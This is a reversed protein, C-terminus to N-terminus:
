PVAATPKFCCHTHADCAACVWVATLSRSKKWGFELVGVPFTLTENLFIIAWYIGWIRVKKGGKKQRKDNSM